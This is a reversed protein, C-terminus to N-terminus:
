PEAGLEHLANLAALNYPNILNAKRFYEIAGYYDGQQFKAWGKWYLAEESNNTISLAYNVVTM